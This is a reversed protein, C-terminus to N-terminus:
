NLKYLPDGCMTAGERSLNHSIENADTWTCAQGSTTSCQVGVSICKGQSSDFYYGPVSADLSKASNGAIAAGVGLLVIAAPLILSKVKKM